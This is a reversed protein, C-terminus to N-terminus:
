NSNSTDFEVILEETPLFWRTPGHPFIVIQLSDDVTM